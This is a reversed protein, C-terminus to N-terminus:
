PQSLGETARPTYEMPRTLSPPSGPSALGPLEWAQSEPLSQNQPHLHGPQNPPQETGLDLCHVSQGWPRTLPRPLPSPQQEM